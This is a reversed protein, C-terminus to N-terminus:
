GTRSDRGNAHVDAENAVPHSDLEWRRHDALEAVAEVKPPSSLKPKAMEQDVGDSSISGGEAERKGRRMGAWFAVFAALAVAVIPGIVAGAIWAQSSSSATQPAGSEQAGTEGTKSTGPPTAPTPGIERYITHATFGPQVCGIKLWSDAAYPYSQYITM